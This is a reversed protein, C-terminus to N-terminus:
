APKRQSLPRFVAKAIADSDSRTLLPRSVVTDTPLPRHTTDSVSPAALLSPAAAVRPAPRWFAYAVGALAVALAIGGAVILTRRAPGARTLDIELTRTIARVGS